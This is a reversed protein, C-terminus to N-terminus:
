RDLSVRVYVIFNEDERMTSAEALSLPRAIVGGRPHLDQFKYPAFTFWLRM